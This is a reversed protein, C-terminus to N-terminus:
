QYTVELVPANGGDKSTFGVDDNANTCPESLTPRFLLGNNALSGDAWERILTLGSSSLPVTLTGTSPAGTFSARVTSGRDGSGNAGPADWPLGPASQLWNAGSETWPKIVRFFAFQGSVSTSTINLKLNASLITKGRLSSVDWKILAEALHCVGNVNGAGYLYPATAYAGQPNKQELRVDAIAQLRAFGSTDGGGSGSMPTTFTLCASRSQGAATKSTIRVYHGTSASLPAMVQYWEGIEANGSTWDFSQYFNSTPASLNREAIIASGPSGCSGRGIDIDYKHAWQGGHWTIRPTTSSSAAVSWPVDPPLPVLNGWLAEGRSDGASNYRVWIRRSDGWKAELRARTRDFTDQGDSIYNIDLNPEDAYVQSGNYVKHLGILVTTKQHNLKCAPNMRGGSYEEFYRKMRVSAGAAYVRDVFNSTWANIARGPRHYTDCADNLIRVSVGRRAAREVAATLVESRTRFGSMYIGVTERDIDAALRTFFDNGGWHFRSDLALSSSYARQRISSGSSGLNNSFDSYVATDIWLDDFRRRMSNVLAPDTTGFIMEDMISWNNYNLNYLNGSGFWGLNQGDFIVFKQHAIVAPGGSKRRIYFEGNNRHTTMASLTATQVPDFIVRVQVGARWRAVLENRVVSDTFIWQAVDIRRTEARIKEVLFDTCYEAAAPDCMYSIPSGGATGTGAAANIEGLPEPAEGVSNAHLPRCSAAAVPFLTPNGPNPMVCDSEVAPITPPPTDGSHPTFLLRNPSDLGADLIVGATAGGTIALAVRAPSAEPSHQLYLAAAGAVHPSAMSTGSLTTRDDDSGAYASLIIGGPAFLDLCRGHNSFPMRADDAGSAGTVILEPVGGVL